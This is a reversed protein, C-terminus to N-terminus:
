MRGHNLLRRLVPIQKLTTRAALMNLQLKWLIDVSELDDTSKVCLLNPRISGM